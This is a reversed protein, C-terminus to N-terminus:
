QQGYTDFRQKTDPSLLQRQVSVVYASETREEIAEEEEADAAEAAEASAEDALAWGELPGPFTCDPKPPEDNGCQAIATMVIRPKRARAAVHIRMNRMM